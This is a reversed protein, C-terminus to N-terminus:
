ILYCQCRCGHIEGSEKIPTRGSFLPINEESGVVSSSSDDLTGNSLFECPNLMGFGSEGIVEFRHADEQEGIARIGNIKRELFEYDPDDEFRLSTLYDMIDQFEVPLGVVLRSSTKRKISSVEERSPQHHWPLPPAVMEVLVYFLSWLDDRRSLDYGDHSNLSAYRSTGRFGVGYRPPIITGDDNRWKKSLGFDILCLDNSDSRYMFNSPKIDRHVYGHSHFSQIASLMQLALNAAQKLNLRNGSAKELVQKLTTDLKEIALYAFKQDVWFKIFCPFHKESQLTQYIKSEEELNPRHNELREIKIALEQHDILSTAYWVEGFGGRGALETLQFEGLKTGPKM